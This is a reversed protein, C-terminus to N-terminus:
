GFIIWNSETEIKREGEGGQTITKYRRFYITGAQFSNWQVTKKKKINRLKIFPGDWCSDNWVVSPYKPKEVFVSVTDTDMQICTLAWLWYVVIELQSRCLIELSRHKLECVIVFSATFPSASPGLYLSKWKTQYWNIQSSFCLMAMNIQSKTNIYEMLM